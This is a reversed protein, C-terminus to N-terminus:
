HLHRADQEALSPQPLTDNHSLSVSADEVEAAWTVGKYNFGEEITPKVLEFYPSLDFDCPAYLSHHRIHFIVDWTYGSGGTWEERPLIPYHVCQFAEAILTSCIARSPDGSGLAIMRRRWRAPIPLIPLLYRALDFINRMDYQMGLHAIMFAIVKERDARTLNVPRCIRSNCHIYKSLPASICGTGLEVEILTHPEEGNSAPPGLANGVYLAAHSWTSHTLFKVTTAAKTAGDVLLVDCPRLVRGLQAPDSHVVSDTDLPGRSIYAAIQKGLWDLVTNLPNSM